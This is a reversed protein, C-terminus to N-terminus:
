WFSVGLTILALGIGAGLVGFFASWATQVMVRHRPPPVPQHAAQQALQMMEQANRQLAWTRASRGQELEAKAAPGILMHRTEGFGERADWPSTSM